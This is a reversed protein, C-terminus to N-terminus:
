KYDGKIDFIKFDLVNIYGDLMADQMSLGCLEEFNIHNNCSKLIKDDYVYIYKDYISYKKFLNDNSKSIFELKKNEIHLGFFSILDLGIVNAKSNAKFTFGNIITDSIFKSEFALFDVVFIQSDVNIKLSNGDLIKYEKVKTKNLLNIKAFGNLNPINSTEYSYPTIDKLYPYVEEVNFDIKNLLNLNNTILHKSNLKDSVKNIFSLNVNSGLVGKIYITDISINNKILYDITFSANESIVYLVEKQIIKTSMKYSLTFSFVYNLYKAKNLGYLRNDINIDLKTILKLNKIEVINSYFDKYSSIKKLFINNLNPYIDPYIECMIVLSDEDLLNIKDLDSILHFDEGSSLYLIKNSHKNILDIM